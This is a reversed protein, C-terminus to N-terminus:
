KVVQIIPKCNMARKYEAYYQNFSALNSRRLKTGYNAKRGPQRNLKEEFQAKTIKM